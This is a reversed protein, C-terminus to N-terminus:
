KRKTSHSASKPRKSTSSKRKSSKSGSRKSGSSKSGSRKSRKNLYARDKVSRKSGSASTARICGAKVTVNKGRRNATYGKRKIMGKGCARKSVM